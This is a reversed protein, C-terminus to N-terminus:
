VMSESQGLASTAITAESNGRLLELLKGITAASRSNVASLL